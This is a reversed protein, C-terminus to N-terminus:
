DTKPPTPSPPESEDPQRAPCPQVGKEAMVKGRSPPDESPRDSGSGADDVVDGGLDPTEIRDLREALRELVGARRGADTGRKRIAAAIGSAAAAGGDNNKWLERADDAIMACEDREKAIAELTLDGCMKAVEITLRMGKAHQADAVERAVSKMEAETYVRPEDTMPTARDKRNLRNDRDLECAPTQKLPDDHMTRGGCFMRPILAGGDPAM